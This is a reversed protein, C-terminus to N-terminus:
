ILTISRADMGSYSNRFLERRLCVSFGLVQANVSPPLSAPSLCLGQLATARLDCRAASTVTSNQHRCAAIGDTHAHAINISSGQRYELSM